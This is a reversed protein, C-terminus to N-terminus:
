HAFLAPDGAPVVLVRCPAARVIKETVSSAGTRGHSAVVLLDASLEGAVACIAQAASAHELLRISVQPLGTFYRERLGLLVSQAAGGAEEAMRRRASEARATSQSELWPPLELVHLLTVVSGFERALTAAQVLAAHSSASLDTAVVISTAFSV